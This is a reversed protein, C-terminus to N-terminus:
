GGGHQSVHFERFNLLKALGYGSNTSRESDKGFKLGQPLRLRFSTRRGLGPKPVWGAKIEQLPHGPVGPHRWILVRVSPCFKEGLVELAVTRNTKGWFDNFIGRDPPLTDSVNRLLKRVARSTGMGRKVNSCNDAFLEENHLDNHFHIFLGTLHQDTDGE